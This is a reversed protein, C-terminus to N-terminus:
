LLYKKSCLEDILNYGDWIYDFNLGKGIPVIREIGKGQSLKIIEIKEEQSLGFYTLTQYNKNSFDTLESVNQINQLYFYGGGCTNTFTKNKM